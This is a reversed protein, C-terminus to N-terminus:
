TRGALRVPVDIGVGEAATAVVFDFLSDQDTSFGVLHGFLDASVTGVMATFLAIGRIMADTFPPSPQGAFSTAEATLMGDIDFPRRPPRLEGSAIAGDVIGIIVRWMRLANPVTEQPASYGPVPSGYLLAFEHPNARAWVRIARCVALWRGGAGSGAAAASRDASEAVGAVSGYSDIILLTLLEDRNKVYRYVASSVLGLDRAVARLSLGAAGEKAIHRRAVALLDATLSARARERATRAASPPSSTM